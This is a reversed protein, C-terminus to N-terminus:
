PSGEPASASVPLVRRLKRDLCAQGCSVRCGPRFVSCSRVAVARRLGIPGLMEFEVEAVRGALSCWFQRRMLTEAAALPALILVVGALAAWLILGWSFGDTVSRVWVDGADLDTALMLWDM